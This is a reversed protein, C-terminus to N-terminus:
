FDLRCFAGFVNLFGPLTRADWQKMYFGDLTVHKIIPTRAGIYIQNRSWNDSRTDYMSEGSLYPTIRHNGIKIPREFQLRNRYRWSVRENINRWEFRNRDSVQLGFKLKARPTLDAHLRHETSLRDPQPENKIYRYQIAATLNKSLARNLGVGIQRNILASDDRGLRLTGFLVLSLNEDLKITTIIDPWIQSDRRPDAAKQAMVPREINLALFLVFITLLFTKM